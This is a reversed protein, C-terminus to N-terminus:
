EQHEACSKESLPSLWLEVLQTILAIGLIIREIYVHVLEKFFPERGVRLAQLGGTRKNSRCKTM